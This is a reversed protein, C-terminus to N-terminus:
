VKSKFLSFFSTFEKKNDSKKEQNNSKKEEDNSTENAPIEKATTERPQTSVSSYDDQQKNTEFHNEVDIHDTQHEMVINEDTLALNDSHTTLSDNEQIINDDKKKEQNNSATTKTIINKNLEYPNHRYTKRGKSKLTPKQVDNHSDIPHVIQDRTTSQMFNRFKTVDNKKQNPAQEIYRSSELMNQLQRYESQRPSHQINNTHHKQTNSQMHEKLQLIEGRLRNIDNKGEVLMNDQKLIVHNINELLETFHVQNVKEMIKNIDQKLQIVSDNMSNIKASLEKEQHEYENIKHQFNDEMIRVEGEFETFKLKLLHFDNKTKVYDDIMDGIELSELTYKYFNLRQNLEEIEQANYLKFQEMM